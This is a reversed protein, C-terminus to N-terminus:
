GPAMIFGDESVRVKGGIETAYSVVINLVDQPGIVYDAPPVTYPTKSADTKQACLPSVAALAAIGL